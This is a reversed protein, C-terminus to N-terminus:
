SSGLLLVLAETLHLSRLSLSREIMDLAQDPDRTDFVGTLHMSNLDPDLIVIRGSRYRNLEAVVDALAREEFVMRHDRWAATNSLRAQSPANPGSPDLRLQQGQELREVSLGAPTDIRVAHEFVTVISEEEGVRIDFATGLARVRGHPTQVEFPRTADAAVQFYAEGEHLTIRRWQAEFESSIASGTDLWVQSGDALRLEQQAGKATYYDAYFQPQQTAWLGTVLLVSAAAAWRLCQLRRSQNKRARAQIAPIDSVQLTDLERWMAQAEQWASEHAPDANLWDEFDQRQAADAQGSTLLTLWHIAESGPDGSPTGNQDNM